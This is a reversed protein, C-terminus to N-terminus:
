SGAPVAAELAECSNDFGAVGDVRGDGVGSQVCGGLGRGALPDGSSNIYTFTFCLVLEAAMESEHGGAILSVSARGAKVGIDSGFKVQPSLSELSESLKQLSKRHPLENGKPCHQCTAPQHVIEVRSQKQRHM